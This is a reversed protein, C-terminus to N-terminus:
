YHFTSTPEEGASVPTIAGGITFKMLGSYLMSFKCRLTPTLFPHSRALAEVTEPNFHPPIPLQTITQTSM